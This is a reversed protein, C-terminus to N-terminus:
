NHLWDRGSVHLFMEPGPFRLLKIKYKGRFFDLHRLHKTLNIMPFNISYCDGFTVVIRSLTNFLM